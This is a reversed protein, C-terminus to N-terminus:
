AYAIGQMQGHLEQLELGAHVDLHHREFAIALDDVRQEAAVDIHGHDRRHGALIMHDAAGQPSDRHRSGM